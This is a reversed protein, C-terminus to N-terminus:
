SKGFHQRTPTPALASPVPHQSSQGAVSGRGQEEPSECCGLVKQKERKSWCQRASCPIPSSCTQLQSCHPKRPIFCHSTSSPACSSATPIKWLAKQPHCGLSYFLYPNDLQDSVQSKKQKLSTLSSFESPNPAATPYHCARTTVGTARDSM